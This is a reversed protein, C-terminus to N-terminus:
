LIVFIASYAVPGLFPIQAAARCFWCFSMHAWRLSLDSQVEAWDSWLRWQARLLYNLAWHNSMLVAFVRILSPPHGAQDSDESPACTTKNTKDHPPENQSVSRPNRPYKDFASHINLSANGLIKLSARTLFLMRIKRFEFTSFGLDSIRSICVDDNTNWFEM